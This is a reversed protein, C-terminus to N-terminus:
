VVAMGSNEEFWETQDSLRADLTEDAVLGMELNQARLGGIEITDDAQFECPSGFAKEIQKQYKMDRPNLFLTTPATGANGTVAQTTKSLPSSSSGFVQSLEKALKELLEEYQETSTFHILQEKAEDFVEDTIKQRKALVERKVEMERHAMERTINSRMEVMEKQIMRYAETLVETEARELERQKFEEVEHEIKLRQEEAYHNIALNFKNLKENNSAM